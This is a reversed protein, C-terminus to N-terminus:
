GHVGIIHSNLDNENDFKEGCYGCNDHGDDISEVSEIFINQGDAFPDQEMSNAEEETGTEENLTVNNSLDGEGVQAQSTEALSSEHGPHNKVMHIKKQGKQCFRRECVDCKHPRESEPLHILKHLRLENPQRFPKQCVDCLYKSRNEEHKKKTHKVLMEASNFVKLCLTCQNPFTVKEVKVKTELASYKQRTKLGHKRLRHRMLYKRSKFAKGCGQVECPPNDSSNDAVEEEEEEQDNPKSAAPAPTLLAPSEESCERLEIRLKSSKNIISPNWKRVASGPTSSTQKTASVVSPTIVVSRKGVLPKPTSITKIISPMSKSVPITKVTESKVPLKIFTLGRGKRNEAFCNKINIGLSRALDKTDALTERSGCDAKGTALIRLLSSITSSTAPVSIGLTSPSFAVAPQNLINRLPESYLSLLVKSTSVKHGEVSILDVEQELKSWETLTERLVKKHDDRSVEVLYSM